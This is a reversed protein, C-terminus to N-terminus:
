KALDGYNHALHQNGIHALERGNAYQVDLDKGGKAPEAGPPYPRAIDSAVAAFALLALVALARIDLRSGPAATVPAM